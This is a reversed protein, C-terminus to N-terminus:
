DDKGVRRTQKSTRMADQHGECYGDDWVEKLAEELHKRFIGMWPGEPMVSGWADLLRQAVILHKM